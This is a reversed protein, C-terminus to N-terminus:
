VHVVFKGLRRGTLGRVAVRYKRDSEGTKEQDAAHQQKADNDAHFDAVVEVTAIEFTLFAVHQCLRLRLSSRCNLLVSEVRLKSLLIRLDRDSWRRM